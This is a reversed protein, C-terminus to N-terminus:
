IINFAKSNYFSLMKQIKRTEFITKMNMRNEYKCVIIIKRENLGSSQNYASIVSRIRKEWRLVAIRGFRNGFYRTKANCALEPM